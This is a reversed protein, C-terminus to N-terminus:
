KRINPTWYIVEDKLLHSIGAVVATGGLVTYAVAKYARGSSSPSFSAAASSSMSSVDQGISVTAVNNTKSSNSISRRATAAAIKSFSTRIMSM